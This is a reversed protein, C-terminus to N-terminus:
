IIIDLFLFLSLAHNDSSSVLYMVIYTSSLTVDNVEVLNYSEPKM